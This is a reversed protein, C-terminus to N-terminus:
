IKVEYKVLSKEALKYWINGVYDLLTYKYDYLILFVDTPAVSQNHSQFQYRQFFFYMLTKAAWSIHFIFEYVCVEKMM